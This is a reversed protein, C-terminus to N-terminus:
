ATFCRGPFLVPLFIRRAGRREPPTSLIVATRNFISWLLFLASRAVARGTCLGLAQRRCRPRLCPEGKNLQFPSQANAWLWLLIHCPPSLPEATCYMVTKKGKPHTTKCTERRACWFHADSSGQLAAKGFSFFGANKPTNNKDGQASYRKTVRLRGFPRVCHLM